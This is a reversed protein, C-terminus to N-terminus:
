PIPHKSSKQFAIQSTQLIMRLCQIDSLILFIQTCASLCLWGQAVESEIPSRM